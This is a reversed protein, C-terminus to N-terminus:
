ISIKVHLGSKIKFINLILLKRLFKGFFHDLHASEDGRGLASPIGCGGEEEKRGGERRGAM